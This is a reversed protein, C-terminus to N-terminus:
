GVRNIFLRTTRWDPIPNTREVNSSRLHSRQLARVFHERSRPITAPIVLLKWIEGCGTTCSRSLRGATVEVLHRARLKSFRGLSLTPSQKGPSEKIRNREGNPSSTQPGNQCRPRLLRIWLHGWAGSARLPILQYRAM